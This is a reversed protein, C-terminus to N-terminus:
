KVLMKKGYKTKLNRIYYKNETIEYDMAESLKARAITMFDGNFMLDQLDEGYVDTRGVVVRIDKVERGPRFFLARAYIYERVKSLKFEKLVQERCRLQVISEELKALEDLVTKNNKIISAYLAKADKIDETEEIGLAKDTTLFKEYQSVREDNGIVNSFVVEILRNNRAMITNTKNNISKNLSQSLSTLMRRDLIM